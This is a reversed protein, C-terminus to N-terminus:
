GGEGEVTRERGGRERGGEKKRGGREDGDYFSRPGFFLRFIKPERIGSLSKTAELRLDNKGKPTLLSSPLPFSPPFSPPVSPPLFPFPTPILPPFPSSPPGVFVAVQIGPQREDLCLCLFILLCGIKSLVSFFFYALFIESFEFFSLNSKKKKLKMFNHMNKFM